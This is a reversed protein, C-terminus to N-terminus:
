FLCILDRKCQECDCNNDEINQRGGMPVTIHDIIKSWYSFKERVDTALAFSKLLDALVPDWSQLDSLLRKSSVRWKKHLRYHIKLLDNVEIGMCLMASAPDTVLNREVKDNAHYIMFQSLQYKEKTIVDPEERLLREKLKALEGTKDFLIISEALMPIKGVKAKQEKEFHEEIQKLSEFTLDLKIGDIFPHNIEKCSSDESTIVKVDLDSYENAEGRAVSGFVFAGVYRDHSALARIKEIAAQFREPIM